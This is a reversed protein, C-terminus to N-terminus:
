TLADIVSVALDPLTSVITVKPRVLNTQIRVDTERWFGPEIGIFIPKSTMSWTGLEYLAIPAVADKPFWFLVMDVLRLYKYEWAIQAEAASPDDMPFSAHRPNVVMIGSNTLMGRMDQQWDGAGTIAGALFVSPTVVPAHNPAELYSQTM